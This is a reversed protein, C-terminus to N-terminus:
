EQEPDLVYSKLKLSKPIEKGNWELMVPVTNSLESVTELQDSHKRIEENITVLLCDAPLAEAAQLSELEGFLVDSGNIKVFFALETADARMATLVDQLAKWREPDSCVPELNELESRPFNPFKLGDCILIQFGATEVEEAMAALYSQTLSNEPSMWFRSEPSSQDEWIEGTDMKHYSCAPYNKAYLDDELTNVLAVPEYGKDKVKQYIQDLPLVAQVANSIVAEQIKTAYYIQGGTTKIPIIVHSIAEPIEELAQELTSETILASTDLVYGQLDPVKQVFGIEPEPETEIMSQTETESETESETNETTETIETTEPIETTETIEASHYPSPPALFDREQLFALVPSGISYGVFGIAGALVFTLIVSGVSHKVQKIHEFRDKRRYIKRGKPKIKM